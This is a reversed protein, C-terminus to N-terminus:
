FKIEIMKKEAKTADAKTKGTKTQEVKKGSKDQASSFTVVKSDPKSGAAKSKKRARRAAKKAAPKKQSKKKGTKGSQSSASKTKGKNLEALEQELQEIRLEDTRSKAIVKNLKKQLGATQKQMAELDTQTPLNVSQMMEDRIENSQKKYASMSNVMEGYLASHEETFVYEAYADENCDVWLNYLQRLSSIEEGDASMKILRDRLLDLAQLGIKGMADNYNENAKLFQKLLILNKQLKEQFERAYGVGPINLYKDMFADLDDAKLARAIDKDVGPMAQFFQTLHNTPVQWADLMETISQHGISQSTGIIAKMSDIQDALQALWADSGKKSESLKELLETLQQGLFYFTKGQQLLRQATPNSFETMNPQMQSWWFEMAKQWQDAKNMSPTSVGTFSNVSNMYEHFMNLWESGAFAKEFYNNSM